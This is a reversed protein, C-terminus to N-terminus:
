KYRRKLKETFVFTKCVRLNGFLTISRLLTNQSNNEEEEIRRRKSEELKKYFEEYFSFREQIDKGNDM